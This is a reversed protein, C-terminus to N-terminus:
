ELKFGINPYHIEKLYFDGKSFFKISDHISGESKPNVLYGQTLQGM